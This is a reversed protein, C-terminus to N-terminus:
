YVKLAAAWEDASLAYQEPSANGAQWAVVKDTSEIVANWEENPLIEQFELPTFLRLSYLTKQNRNLVFHYTRESLDDKTVSIKGQWNKPYEFYFQEAASTFTVTPKSLSSGDFSYWYTYYLSNKQSNMAVAQPIEPIGDGNIDTCKVATPRDGLMHEGTFLKNELYEGESIVLVETAYMQNNLQTDVYVASAGKTTKAVQLSLISQARSDLPVSSLSTVKSDKYGLLVASAGATNLLVIRNASDGAIVFQNYLEKHLSQMDPQIKLIEMVHDSGTLYGWGVVIEATKDGDIDSFELKDVTTADSDYQGIKKWKGDVSKLVVVHVLAPTGATYLCIAENQEDADLDFLTIGSRDAGNKPSILTYATGVLETVADQIQKRSESLQPPQMLEEISTETLSCACLSIMLPIFACLAGIKKFMNKQM